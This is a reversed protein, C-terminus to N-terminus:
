ICCSNATKCGKQIQLEFAREKVRRTAVGMLQGLARARPFLASGLGEKVIEKLKAVSVYEFNNYGCGGQDLM